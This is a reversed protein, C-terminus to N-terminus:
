LFIIINQIFVPALVPSGAVVMIGVPAVLLAAAGVVGAGVGYTVNLFASQIANLLNQRDVRGKIKEVEAIINPYRSLVQNMENITPLLNKNFLRNYAFIQPAHEQLMEVIDYYNASSSLYIVPQPVPALRSFHPYIIKYKASTITYGYPERKGEIDGNAFVVTADLGRLNLNKMADFFDSMVPAKFLPDKTSTYLARRTGTGVIGLFSTSQEAVMSAMISPSSITTTENWKSPNGEILKVTLGPMQNGSYSSQGNLRVSSKYPMVSPDASDFLGTLGLYYRTASEMVGKKNGLTLEPTENYHFVNIGYAKELANAVSSLNVNQYNSYIPKLLRDRARIQKATLSMHELGMSLEVPATTQAQATAAFNLTLALAWVITRKM